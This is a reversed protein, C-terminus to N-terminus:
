RRPLPQAGDSEIFGRAQFARELALWARMRRPAVGLVFCFRGFRERLTAMSMLILM